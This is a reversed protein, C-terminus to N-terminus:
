FSGDLYWIFDTRLADFFCSGELPTLRSIWREHQIYGVWQSIHEVFHRFLVHERAQLEIPELAEWEQRERQTERTRSTREELYNNHTLASLRGGAVRGVDSDVSEATM